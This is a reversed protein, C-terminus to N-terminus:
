LTNEQGSIKRSESEEGELPRGKAVYGKCREELMCDNDLDYIRDYLVTFKRNIEMDTHVHGFFWKRFHVTDAVYQLFENLPKEDKYSYFSNIITTPATHSIVYDVDYGVEKLNRLAERCETDSPMEREWWSVSPKRFAKDQSSAGGMVFFCKDDIMYVQGRMLHIINDRVFHVKGGNWLCVPMSDLMDFNEHNGDAFLTTFNRTELWNLWKLHRESNDWVGGFDGCIIVYDSRKMSLQEPFLKENLKEIDIPIHTDGTIYIVREAEKAHFFNSETVVNM